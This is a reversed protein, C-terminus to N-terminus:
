AYIIDGIKVSEGLEDFINIYASASSDAILYKHIKRNEKMNVTEIKELVIFKLEINKENPKLSLIEHSPKKNVLNNLIKLEFREQSSM